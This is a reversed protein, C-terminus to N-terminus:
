TCAVNNLQCDGAVTIVDCEGNYVFFSSLWKFVLFQDHGLFVFGHPGFTICIFKPLECLANSINGAGVGYEENM